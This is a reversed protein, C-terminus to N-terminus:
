VDGDCWDAGYEIGTVAQYTPIEHRRLMNLTRQEDPAPTRYTRSGGRGFLGDLDALEAPLFWAGSSSASSWRVSFPGSTESEAAQNVKALRREVAAAAYAAVLPKVAEWRAALSGGYRGALLAMIAALFAEVRPKEAASLPRGMLTEIDATTLAPVMM